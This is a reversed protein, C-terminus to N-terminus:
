SLDFKRGCNLFYVDLFVSYFRSLYVLLCCGDLNFDFEFELLWMDKNFIVFYSVKFGKNRKIFLIVIGVWFVMLGYLSIFVILIRELSGM